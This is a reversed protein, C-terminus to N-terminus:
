NGTEDNDSPNVDEDGGLNLQVEFGRVSLLSGTQSPYWGVVEADLYPEVGISNSHCKCVPDDDKTRIDIDCSITIKEVMERFTM